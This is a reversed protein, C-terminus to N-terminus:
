AKSLLSLFLSKSCATLGRGPWKESASVFGAGALWSLFFFGCTKAYVPRHACALFYNALDFLPVSSVKLFPCDCPNVQFLLRLGSLTCFSSCLGTGTGSLWPHSAWPLTGKGM